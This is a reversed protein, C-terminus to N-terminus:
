ETIHDVIVFYGEDPIREDLPGQWGRITPKVYSYGYAIRYNGITVDRSAQPMTWGENYLEMVQNKFHRMEYTIEVSVLLTTILTIWVLAEMLKSKLM